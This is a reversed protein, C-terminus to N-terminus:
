KVEITIVDSMVPPDFPVHNMDGLVLQLTHTGPPLDLETETQGGGFHKIHDDAPLNEKLEDESLPPRDILLHHHGTGPKDTGAPAVGMGRLGFVVHVPSAVTEGNSPAIFYVAPLPSEPTKEAKAGFKFVGVISLAALIGIVLPIKRNM